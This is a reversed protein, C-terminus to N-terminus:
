ADVGAPPADGTARRFAGMKGPLQNVGSRGWGGDILINEGTVFAADKSLLYAITGAVDEPEGLRGLPVIRNRIAVVEPDKYAVNLPTRIPGPSVSNVRVGEKAWEQSLVQCLTILAGKAVPYAGLGIHPFTGSMSAVAVMSGGADRLAPFAAKGLLWAARAHLNILYDWDEVATEVLPGPILLGANSVLSDLGGCFSVAEEVFAAPVEPDTLDGTLSLVDAGISRLKEVLDSLGARGGTACAVIKARVGTAAADRAIRECVAGGIGGFSAGTILARM